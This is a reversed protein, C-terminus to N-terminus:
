ARPAILTVSTPHKPVSVTRRALDAYALDFLGPPLEAAVNVALNFFDLRRELKQLSLDGLWLPTQGEHLRVGTDWFRLVWRSSAEPGPRVLAFAEHRGDHVRPLVPLDVLEAQPNLWQLASKFDLWPAPEWGARHLRRLLEAQPAAWQLDLLQQPQGRFDVRQAPLQRWGERWWDAQTMARPITQSQYQQLADDHGFGAYVLEAVVLAVGATALLGARGFLPGAHRYYGLGLVLVWLLGLCLGALVDTLWHAGLYLLSFGTLVAILAASLYPLWRWRPATERAVLVALFGFLVTSLVAHGSPFGYAFMNDALVQPRPVQLLWKLLVTLVFGFALAGLWHMAAQYARRWCLWLAVAAAMPLAVQSGGLEAIAVMLTDTWPTRLDQLFRYLTYDLRTPLAHGSAAFLLDVLVFGGLLLLALLALGRLEGQQPDLLSAGIPGLLARDRSWAAFQRLWGEVRPQFFLFLRRVLTVTLWVLVVLLVILVVLRWAVQAALELSAAFVVGPLLYAPAWLLASLVNVALFRGPPMDLMGAVAPVVARVPGFFRGFLVSKGGHRRFFVEGQALMDPHRSFPWLGRLQQHCTRGLWFSLADGAVAGAVAFACASWFDMHGLAILAGFGFMLIAGPVLMGVVALSESLATLFVLLAMWGPHAAIWDLTATLLHEMM